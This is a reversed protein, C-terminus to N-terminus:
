TLTSSVFSIGGQAFLATADAEPLVVFGPGTPYNPNPYSTGNVNVEQVAVPLKITIQQSPM